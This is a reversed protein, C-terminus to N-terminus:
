CSCMEPLGEFTCCCLTLFCDFWSTKGRLFLGSHPLSKHLIVHAHMHYPNLRGPQTDNCPCYVAPLFHHFTGDVFWMDADALRHLNDITCFIVVRDASGDDVLVFSDGNLTSCWEPAPTTITRKSIQVPQNQPQLHKADSFSCAPQLAHCGTGTHNYM